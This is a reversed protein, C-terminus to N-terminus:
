SSWNVRGKEVAAQGQDRGKEKNRPVRKSGFRKLFLVGKSNRQPRRLYSAGHQDPCENSIAEAQQDGQRYGTGNVQVQIGEETSACKRQGGSIGFCSELCSLQQV